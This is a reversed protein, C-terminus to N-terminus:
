IRNKEEWQKHFSKREPMPLVRRKGWARKFMMKMGSRKFSSPIAELLSRKGMLRAYRKIAKRDKKDVTKDNVADRRNLLLMRTIDIKVPCVENCKGCLTSAYSLHGFAEMSKIHPLIAAGIPGNYVSGYAHGGVTKYVPCVNMCAGCRICSLAERQEPKALLKSRGNDLLIVVMEKSADKGPGSILSNYATVKQGTGHAPLLRWFLELERSSPIVKDIGAVVIHLAPYSFSLLGNGENETIAVAGEAALLFNAGTIGADAMRFEDRLKNRTFETIEQVSSEEPLDFKKRYLEAVKEKSYHLAPATIHYPKENQLQVIYEGLDTELPIIENKQLHKNLDLEETAMSKSKVVKKVDHKKLINIIEKLADQEDVAWIVKGGNNNFATEFDKLYNELNEMVNRRIGAARERLMDVDALEQMAANFKKDFVSTNHKLIQQHEQDFAKTEAFANFDRITERM